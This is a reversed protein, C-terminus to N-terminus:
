QGRDNPYIVLELRHSKNDEDYSCAVREYKFAFPYSQTIIVKNPDLLLAPRSLLFEAVKRESVNELAMHYMCPKNDLEDEFEDDEDSIYEDIEAEVFVTFLM